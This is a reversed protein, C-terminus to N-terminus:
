SVIRHFNANGVTWQQVTVPGPLVAPVVPGPTMDFIWSGERVQPQLTSGAQWTLTVLTPTLPNFAKPPNNVSAPLPGCALERASLPVGTGVSRQTYVVVTINCISRNGAKPRRLLWAWSYSGGRDVSGGALSPQGDTGFTIDDTLVCYNVLRQQLTANTLT